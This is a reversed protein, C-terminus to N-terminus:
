AQQLERPGASAVPLAEIVYGAQKLLRVSVAQPRDAPAYAPVRVLLRDTRGFERRAVPSAGPMEVRQRYERSTRARVREPTGLATRPPPLDTATITRTESAIVHSSTGDVSLRLRLPGPNVGFTASSTDEGGPAAAEPVTGTYYVTEDPGAAVISVRTPME